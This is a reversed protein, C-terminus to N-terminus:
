FIGSVAGDVVRDKLWRSGTSRFGVVKDLSFAPGEPVRLGAFDADAVDELRFAPRPDPAAVAIEVDRMSVRRAHRIFFGTAPLDGFMTAEPYGLEAEPPRLAAMAAPAGGVHQLHLNSFRIDEIPHGDLGAIVSPLLNAGSSVVNEISIRRMTGIPRGAPGRMRKGLRLFFPANVIGRMTLNSVAVDEVMGGDVSQFALSRFLM